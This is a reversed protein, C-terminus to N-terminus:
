GPTYLSGCCPNIQGLVQVGKSKSFYSRIMVDKGLEPYQGSSVYGFYSSIVRVFSCYPAVPCTLFVFISVLACCVCVAMVGLRCVLFRLLLCGM